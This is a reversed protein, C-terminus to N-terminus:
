LGAIDAMDGDPAVGPADVGEKGRIGMTAGAPTEEDEGKPTDVADGAPAAPGAAAAIADGRGGAVALAAM